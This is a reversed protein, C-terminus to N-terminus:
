ALKPWGSTIFSPRSCHQAHALSGQWIGEPLICSCISPFSQQIQLKLTAWTLTIHLSVILALDQGQSPAARARHVPWPSTLSSLLAASLSPPTRTPLVSFRLWFHARASLSSLLARPHMLGLVAPWHSITKSHKASSGGWRCCQTCNQMSCCLSTLFSNSFMWLLAVSITFFRSPLICSSYSLDSPRNPGSWLLNFPARMTAAAGWLSHLATSLETWQPFPGPGLSHGPAASPSLQPPPWLFPRGWFATPMSCSELSTIVAGLQQHELLM